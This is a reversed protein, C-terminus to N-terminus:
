VPPLMLLTLCRDLQKADGEDILTSGVRMFSYVLIARTTAEAMDVGQEAFLRAIYRLRLTDIEQLTSLVRAHRRGWLRVALEIREGEASRPARFALGILHRLRENPPEHAAELREIIALTARRRWHSLMADLLAERDAFHWYFSGKTVGLQKALVEVRVGDIGQEALLKLAARVWSDADLRSAEESL